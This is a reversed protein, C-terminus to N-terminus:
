KGKREREIHDMAMDLGLILVQSTSPALPDRSRDTLKRLRAERAPDIRAGITTIKSNTKKLM